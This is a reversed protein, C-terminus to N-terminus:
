CELTKLFDIEEHVAIQFATLSKNGHYMVDKYKTTVSCYPTNVCLTRGTKLYIPCKKCTHKMYVSCLACNISTPAEKNNLIDEVTLDLMRTYHAICKKQAQRAISPIPLFFSLLRYLM